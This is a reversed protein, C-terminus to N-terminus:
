VGGIEAERCLREGDLYGGSDDKVAPDHAGILRAASHKDVKVTNPVRAARAQREGCSHERVTEVAEEVIATPITLRAASVAGVALLLLMIKYPHKIGHLRLADIRRTDDDYSV